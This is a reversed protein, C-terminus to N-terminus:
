PVPRAQPLAEDYRVYFTPFVRHVHLVARQGAPTSGFIRLVPVRHLAGHLPSHADLGPRPADFYYDVSVCRVVFPPPGVGPSPECTTM